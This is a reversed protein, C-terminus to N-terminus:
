HCWVHHAAIIHATYRIPTVKILATVEHNGGTLFISNKTYGCAGQGSLGQNLSPIALLKRV